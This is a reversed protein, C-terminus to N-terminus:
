LVLIRCFGCFLSPTNECLPFSERLFIDFIIRHFHYRFYRSCFGYFLEHSLDCIGTRCWKAKECKEEILKFAEEMNNIDRRKEESFNREVLIKKADQDDLMLKKLLKEEEVLNLPPPLTQNGKIYFVPFRELNGRESYKKFIKLIKEQLCITMDM